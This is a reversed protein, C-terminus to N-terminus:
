VKLRKLHNQRLQQLIWGSFNVWKNEDVSFITGTWCRYPRHQTEFFAHLYRSRIYNSNYTICRKGCRRWQCYKRHCSLHTCRIRGRHIYLRRVHCSYRAMAVLLHNPIRRTCLFRSLILDNYEELFKAITELLEISLLGIPRNELFAKQSCVCLLTPVFQSNLQQTSEQRSLSLRRPSMKTRNRKIHSFCTTNM